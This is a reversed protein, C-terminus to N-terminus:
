DPTQGNAWMELAATWGVRNHSRRYADDLGRLHGADVGFAAALLDFESVTGMGRKVQTPRHGAAYQHFRWIPLGARSAADRVTWGRALAMRALHCALSPISVAAEGVWDPRTGDARSGGCPLALLRIDPMSRGCRPCTTTM